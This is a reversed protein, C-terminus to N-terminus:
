LRIFKGTASGLAVDARSATESHAVAVEDNPPINEKSSLFVYICLQRSSRYSARPLLAKYYEKISTFNSSKVPYTILNDVDSVNSNHGAYSMISTQIFFLHKTGDSGRGYIIGDIAPHFPRLRYLINEIHPFEEYADEYADSNDLETCLKACM